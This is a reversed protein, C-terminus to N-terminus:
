CTSICRHSLTSTNVEYQYLLMTATLNQLVSVSDLNGISERLASVVQSKHHFSKSEGYLQLSALALVGHLVLSSSSPSSFAMQLVFQALAEDNNPALV